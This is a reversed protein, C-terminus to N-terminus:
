ATKTVGNLYMIFIFHIMKIGSNLPHLVHYIKTHRNKQNKMLILLKIEVVLPVFM